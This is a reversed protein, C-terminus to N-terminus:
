SPPSLVRSIAAHIVPQDMATVRARGLVLRDRERFGKDQLPNCCRDATEAVGVVVSERFDTRATVAM